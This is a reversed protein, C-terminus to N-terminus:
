PAVPQRADFREQVRVTEVIVSFLARKMQWRILSDWEDSAFSYLDSVVRQEQDAPSRGTAIVMGQFFARGEDSVRPITQVRFSWGRRMLDIMANVDPESAGQDIATIQRKFLDTDSV